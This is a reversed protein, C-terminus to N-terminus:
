PAGRCGVVPGPACDQPVGCVEITEWEGCTLTQLEGLSTCRYRTRELEYATQECPTDAEGGCGSLFAAVIAALRMLEKM